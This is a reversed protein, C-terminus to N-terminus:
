ENKIYDPADKRKKETQKVQEERPLGYKSHSPDFVEFDTAKMVKPPKSNTATPPPPPKSVTRAFSFSALPTLRSHSVRYLLASTRITLM